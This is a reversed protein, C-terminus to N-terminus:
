GLGRGLGASMTLHKTLSTEFNTGLFGYPIGLGIGVRSDRLFKEKKITANEAFTLNAFLVVM